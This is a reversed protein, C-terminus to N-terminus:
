AAQSKSIYTETIRPFCDYLIRSLVRRIKGELIREKRENISKRSKRKIIVLYKKYVNAITNARRKGGGM